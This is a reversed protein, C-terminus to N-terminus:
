LIIKVKGDKKLSKQAAELIKVGEYGNKGNTLPDKRKEICDLFHLCQKELPSTKELPPFHATMKELDFIKLKDEELTDEFTSFKEKGVTLLNRIKKSKTGDVKIEARLGDEYQLNLSISEQSSNALVELPLKGSLHNIISIDHSALNWMLSIGRDPLDSGLRRSNFYSLEGFEGKEISEKLYIIGPNYLFINGVMLIKSKKKAIEMLKLAKKSSLTMPKEVLVDKENELAIKAIEYHTKPPTSIIM